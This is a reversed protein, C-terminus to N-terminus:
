SSLCLKRYIEKITPLDIEAIFWVIDVVNQLTRQKEANQVTICGTLISGEVCKCFKLLNNSSM